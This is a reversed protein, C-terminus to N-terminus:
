CFSDQAARSSHHCHQRHATDGSAVPPHKLLVHPDDALPVWVDSDFPLVVKRLRDIPSGTVEQQTRDTKEGTTLCM